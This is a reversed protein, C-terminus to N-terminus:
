HDPSPRMIPVRLAPSVDLGYFWGTGTRGDAIGGAIAEDESDVEDDTDIPRSGLKPQM